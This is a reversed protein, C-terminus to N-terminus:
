EIRCALSDVPELKGSISSRLGADLMAMSELNLERDLTPHLPEGTELHYILEGAVQERGAPLPNPEVVRSRGHGREIRVVHRGQQSDVVLTGSTGYVIPGCPVGHDFTTWSAELLGIAGRFRLLIAGNDDADAWQSDLNVKMGIAAVAVEDLFWRCIMGGFSCFDLMAGGGEAAQHWWTAAREAGSMPAATEDVGAHAAGPGLPGTHGERLKIELVRGIEGAAVLEKALRVAPSWTMPWNVIMTTDAARTARVMRLAHELSVAMPKEVCVVAGVAAGAEVVELHHSNETCCVVIDLKEAGLMAKWDKGWDKKVGCKAVVNHRNWERTYSAVRMEPHAPTTDACAAMDVRPHQAFLAAVNNVHMHGFGVIGVRFRRSM